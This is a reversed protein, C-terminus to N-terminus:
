HIPYNIDCLVSGPRIFGADYGTPLKLSIECLKGSEAFDVKKTQCEIAKVIVEENQPLLIMKQNETVVGSEVKTSFCDGTTISFGDKMKTFIDYVCVRTPKNYPKPHSKFTDLVELLCM